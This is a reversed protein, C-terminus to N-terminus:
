KLQYVPDQTLQRILDMRDLGLLPESVPAAALIVRQVAEPGRGDFQGLWRNGDFQVEMMARIFRERNQQQQATAMPDGGGMAAALMPRLEEARFLRELFTKRALLTTSNIWAEGGPWGKVNPPAFLAQGLQNTTVVLPMVDGTTFQFQRLTGVVFDVPSKILAARNHRAYFADSVLMKLWSIVSDGEIDGAVM